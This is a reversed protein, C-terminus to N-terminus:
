VPQLRIEVCAAGRPIWEAALRLIQLQRGRRRLGDDIQGFLVSRLGREVRITVAAHRDGDAPQAPTRNEVVLEGRQAVVRDATRGPGCNEVRLQHASLPKQSRKEVQEVLGVRGSGSFKMDATIFNPPVETASGSAILRRMPITEPSFDGTTTTEASDFTVSVSTFTQLRASSPSAPPAACASAASTSRCTDTADATVVVLRAPTTALTFASNSSSIPRTCASATRRSTDGRDCSATSDTPSSTLLRITSAASASRPIALAQTSARPTRTVSASYVAAAGSMAAVHSRTRSVMAGSCAAPFTATSPPKM